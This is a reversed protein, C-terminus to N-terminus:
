AQVGPPTSPTELIVPDFVNVIAPLDATARNAHLDQHEVSLGTLLTHGIGGTHFTWVPELEYTYDNLADHQRRLQRGSLSGNASVGGGDGNRLIDLDRNMFSFHNNVTLIPSVMWADSATIRLLTQEAHGFPTSYHTDRSVGTIPAGNVYVLGTPDPTAQIHRADVALM